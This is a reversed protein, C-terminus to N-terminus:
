SSAPNQSALMRSRHRIRLLTVILGGLVTGIMALLFLIGSFLARTQSSQPNGFCVSCAWAQSATLYSFLFFLNFKM